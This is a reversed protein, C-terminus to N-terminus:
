EILEDARLLFSEPITLGITKATKLNVVLRFRTPYQVPLDSIKAGRLIRDIYSAVGRALEPLDSGYSMLAGDAEVVPAGYIAPLRHQEALRLLELPAIGVMGPNPLLAGNPETAFREIAAKIDAANSVPITEIKVGLKQAAAVVYRGYSDGGQNEARTLYAVRTINPAAEKLLELWKGGLSGFLAAFGTLNGEPRAVNKVTGRDKFDGAVGIIPITKTEQQLADMAVGNFVFITDPQLKVLETAYARTRNIDGGGFRVDLRLNRGEIWGLEGLEQLVARVLPIERLGLVAVRRMRGDQQAHAALPWAVAAGGLGAIFERRRM